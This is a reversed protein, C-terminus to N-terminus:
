GYVWRDLASGTWMTNIRNATRAYATEEGPTLVVDESLSAQLRPLLARADDTLELDLLGHLRILGEVLAAPTAHPGTGFKAGGGRATEHLAEGLDTAPSTDALARATRGLVDLDAADLETPVLPVHEHKGDPGLRRGPRSGPSQQTPRLADWLRRVAELAQDGAVPEPLEVPDEENDDPLMLLLEELQVLTALPEGDLDPVLVTRKGAPPKDAPSNLVGDGGVTM